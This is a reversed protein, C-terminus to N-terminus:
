QKQPQTRTKLEYLLAIATKNIAVFEIDQTEGNPNVVRAATVAIFPEDHNNLLDMPRCSPLIHISGEIVSGDLLRIGALREERRAKASGLTDGKEPKWPSAVQPTNFWDTGV